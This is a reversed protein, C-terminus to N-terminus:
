LTSTDLKLANEIVQERVKLNHKVAEQLTEKTDKMADPIIDLAFKLLENEAKKLEETAKIYKGWLGCGTVAAEYELNVKDFLEEDDIMYVLTAKTGDENVINKKSMFEIEFKREQNKFMEYTAKAYRYNSQAKKM